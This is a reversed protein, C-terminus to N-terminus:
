VPFQRDFDKHSGIWIWVWTDNGFKQAVARYDRTVRVSWFRPDSRLRELHLSPHAPNEQFKTYAVRAVNKISNPLAHYTKWFGATGYSKV